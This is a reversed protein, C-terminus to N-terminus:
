PTVLDVSTYITLTGPGNVALVRSTGVLTEGALDWDTTIPDGADGSQGGGGRITAGTALLAAEWAEEFLFYVTRDDGARPCVYDQIMHWQGHSGILSGAKCLPGGPVSRLVEEPDLVMLAKDSAGPPSDSSADVGPGLSPLASCAGLASAMLAATAAVAVTGRATRM